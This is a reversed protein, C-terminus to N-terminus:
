RAAGATDTESDNDNRDDPRDLYTVDTARAYWRDAREGARTIWQEHRLSATIAVHRGAHLHQACRGALHGWTQITLYIRPRGDITLRLECSLAKPTERRVPEDALRGTVTLVNMADGKAPHM